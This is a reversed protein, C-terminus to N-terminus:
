TLWDMLGVTFPKQLSHVSVRGRRLCSSVQPGGRGVDTGLRRPVKKGM